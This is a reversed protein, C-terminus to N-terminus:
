RRDFLDYADRGLDFRGLGDVPGPSFVNRYESRTQQWVAYLTSGRRWEWRLVASGRLSLFNFDPDSLRFGAAPGAGDPDINYFGKDDRTSTGVDTGYRDFAFTGPARLEKFEGYNGSSIYPQAYMEFSLAPAFTYNLRTGIGVTTQELGAFVYRRGFTHVATSDARQTVYQAASHGRSFSPGVSVNWNPATKVGLNPSVSLHWGGAADRSFGTFGNLTVKKRSDSHFHANLSTSAVRRALPGGRTMRDDLSALGYSFNMGGGWYNVFQGFAGMYASTGVRDGGHNWEGRLGPNLNWSRFLKGPRNEVYVLYGQGTLRDASYQFGLDNIEYGPSTASMLVGGRWHTGAQRNLELNAAYGGLATAATDLELHSADPRQFYRASSRQASRIVQPSGSIGSGTVSGNVSWSRKAWEHKFDIGGVYASSRLSQRFEETELDRNVATFLAGVASQGARLDRRVRGVFFNTLPEVMAQGRLGDRTVFAAQERGTLAELVGISWGNRTKGTLKAAGLITTAEPFDSHVAGHRSGLAWQPVGQPPAGIRRSYFIETCGFCIGDGGGFRFINAGEVFFPRREQYYTEFASLNIQAPDLEVQGFDPNATADLTLNSTVRYKLDVGVGGFQDSGTRFPNGAAVDRHESRATVYPLVELRRGPRLGELGVLHGYRAIGGRDKKPTFSFVAFEQKRSIRRTFQIGWTQERDPSFRLQSLPIRIEATWGGSDVSTAAEWVPEWSRDGFFDNAMAEDSRVGAPNIGFRLATVHDHYSDLTISFLDSDGLSTDRRGLRSSVKGTDHMRAGVYLMEDDYLVRVETRESAPEGE